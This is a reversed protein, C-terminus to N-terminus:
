TGPRGGAKRVPPLALSRPFTHLLGRASKEQPRASPTERPRTERQESRSRAGAVQAPMAAVARDAALSMYSRLLVARARHRHDSHAALRDQDHRLFSHLTGFWCRRDVGASKDPSRACRPVRVLFSMRYPELQPEGPATSM